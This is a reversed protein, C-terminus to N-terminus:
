AARSPAAPSSSRTKCPPALMARASSRDLRKWRRHLWLWQSPHRRVFSALAETADQTTTDIWARGPRRPPSHVGLVHLEHSGDETRRSAAVVLPAGSAAALAAPARDALAPRGLFDVILARQASAPVQDIMMAVVGGRRLADRGVALAGVAGVLRVGLSARATQWIRDLWRVSLHKTVVTLEVDRAIACAALDWNGTHTAAVVVGKGGAVAARWADVSGAEIRVRRLAREGAMAMWLFEMASVGLARYMGRAVERPREIAAAAMSDEVHRRRIRLVSGAVWGLLAGAIRLFLSL